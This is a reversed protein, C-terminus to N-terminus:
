GRQKRLVLKTTEILFLHECCSATGWGGRSEIELVLVVLQRCVCLRVSVCACIWMSVCITEQSFFIYIATVKETYSPMNVQLSHITKLQMHQRERLSCIRNKLWCKIYDPTAEEKKLKCMQGDATVGAASRVWGPLRASSFGCICESETGTHMYFNFAVCM